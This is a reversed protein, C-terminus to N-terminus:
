NHGSTTKTMTTTLAAASTSLFSPRSLPLFQPYSTSAHSSPSLSLSLSLSLENFILLASYISSPLVRLFNLYDEEGDNDDDDDDKFLQQFNHM